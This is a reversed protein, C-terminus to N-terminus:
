LEVLLQVKVMQTNQILDEFRILLLSPGGSGCSMDESGGNGNGNGFTTDCQHLWYGLFKCWVGMEARALGRWKDRYREYVEEVVSETHTNTCCMNWYSDIADYPNRVLLIVRDANYCM